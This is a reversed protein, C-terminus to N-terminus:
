QSTLQCTSRITYSDHTFSLQKSGKGLVKPDSYDKNPEDQDEFKLSLKFVNTTEQGDPVILKVPCAQIDSTVTVLPSM